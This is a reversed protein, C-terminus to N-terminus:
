LQMLHQTVNDEYNAPATRAGTANEDEWQKQKKSENIVGYMDAKKKLLDMQQQPSIGGIKKMAGMNALKWDTYKQTLEPIDADRIGALNKSFEDDLAANLQQQKAERQKQEAYLQAAARDTASTNPTFIDGFNGVIRQNPNYNM